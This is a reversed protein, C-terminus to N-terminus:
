AFPDDDGEEIAFATSPAAKAQSGLTTIRQGAIEWCAARNPQFGREPEEVWADGVRKVATHRGAMSTSFQGRGAAKAGLALDQAVSELVSTVPDIMGTADSDSKPSVAFSPIEISNALSQAYQVGPTAVVDVQPGYSWQVRQSGNAGDKSVALTRKVLPLSAILGQVSEPNVNRTETLMTLKSGRLNTVPYANGLFPNWRVSRNDEDFLIFGGEMTLTTRLVHMPEGTTNRKRELMTLEALGLRAVVVEARVAVFDGAGPVVRGGTPLTVAFSEGAVFNFQNGRRDTIEADGFDLSDAAFINESTTETVTDVLALVSRLKAITEPTLDLNNSM